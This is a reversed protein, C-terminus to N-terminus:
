ELRNIRIEIKGIRMILQHDNNLEEDLKNKIEKKEDNLKRNESKLTFMEKNKKKNEEELSTIIMQDTKWIFYTLLLYLGILGFMGLFYLIPQESKSFVMMDNLSTLANAAALIIIILLSAIKKFSKSFNKESNIMQVIFPILYVIAILLIFDDSTLIKVIIGLITTIIIFVFAPIIQGTDKKNEVNHEMMEGKRM